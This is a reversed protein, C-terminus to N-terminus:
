VTNSKQPIKANDKEGQRTNTTSSDQALLTKDSGYGRLEKQCM